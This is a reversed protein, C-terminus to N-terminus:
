SNPGPMQHFPDLFSRDSESTWIKCIYECPTLGGLIKLRRAFNDAVMFNNPHAYLQDYSGYHFRTM